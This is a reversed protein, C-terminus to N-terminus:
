YKEQWSEVNLPGGLYPGTGRLAEDYHIGAHNRVRIERTVLAGFITSHNRIMVEANPMYFAGYVAINNEFDVEEMTNTGYITLATPDGSVSNVESNNRFKLRRGVYINARAGNILNIRTNNDMYIRDSVYLNVDRDITITSSNKMMIFDYQGDESITVSEGHQIDIEGRYPLDPPSVAPLETRAQAVSQTGTISADHRIKIDESLVGDPGIVADGNIGAHNDVEIAYEGGEGDGANTGVDGNQNINGNGYAGIRSNYSDIYSNNSFRVYRDSFIGWDFATPRSVYATIVRDDEGVAGTARLRLMNNIYAEEIVVTFNGEGLCSNSYVAGASWPIRENYLDSVTREIGAEALYLAKISDNMKKTLNSNRTIVTLYGGVASVSIFIFIMAIVLASGYINKM